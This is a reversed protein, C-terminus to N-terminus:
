SNVRILIFISITSEFLAKSNNDLNLTLSCYWIVSLKSNTLYSFAGITPM